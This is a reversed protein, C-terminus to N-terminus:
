KVDYVQRQWEITRHIGEELGVTTHFDLDRRAKANDVKKDKTNHDEFPLLEVLDDDKGIYELVIDSLTKIDHYEDSGINYIEGPKFSESINTLTRVTDDIYTSSRHHGLYVKIPLDHLLRYIFQCIVSRFPTYYEGPGFTNFLRVRVTETGFRAASNLVQMENVWKTIAYDNMQKIPHEDMVSEAMVDPWDGYVESSSFVIMRFGRQEQLRLMNKTGIANSRWLAEYYGEGNNRGFEAAAHYVYDFSHEDFLELLQRYEAVDCRDYDPLESHRLDCGRVTHGRARLSEWLPRGVAGLAGTILINSM